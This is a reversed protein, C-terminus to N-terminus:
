TWDVNSGFSIAALHATVAPVFFLLGLWDFPERELLHRSRPSLFWGLIMGIVGAPVSVFFILRWGGATILLGGIAPGVALGVAQAAGRVGIARGLMRKPMAQVILAVNSAQSMAAGLAQVVRAAFLFPPSTALGSLASGLIFIGFGYTYLM